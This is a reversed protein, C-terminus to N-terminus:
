CEIDQRVNDAAAAWFIIKRDEIEISIKKTNSFTGGRSAIFKLIHSLAEVTVFQIENEIQVQQKTSLRSDRGDRARM